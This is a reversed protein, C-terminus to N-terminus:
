GDLGLLSLLYRALDSDPDLDAAFFAASQVQGRDCRMADSRADLAEGQQELAVLGEPWLERDRTEALTTDDLVEVVSELYRATDVALRGCTDNEITTTTSPLSPDATTPTSTASDCSALLLALVAVTLRSYVVHSPLPFPPYCIASPLICSCHLRCDAMQM